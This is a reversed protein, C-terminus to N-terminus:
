AAAPATAAQAKDQTESTEGEDKQAFPNLSKGDAIRNGAYIAGGGAAVFAAVQLPAAVTVALVSGGAVGVLAGTGACALANRTFMDSTAGATETTGVPTTFVSM